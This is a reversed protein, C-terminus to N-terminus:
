YNINSVEQTESLQGRHSTTFDLKAHVESFPPLQCLEVDETLPYVQVWQAWRTSALVGRLEETSCAEAM